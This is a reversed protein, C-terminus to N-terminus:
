LSEMDLRQIKYEPRFEISGWKQKLFWFYASESMGRIGDLLSVFNMIKNQMNTSLYITGRLAARYIAM